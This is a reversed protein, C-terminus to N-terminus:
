GPATDSAEPSGSAEPEAASAGTAGARARTEQVLGQIASLLEDLDIPKSLMMDVSEEVNREGPLGGWGTLLVIPV